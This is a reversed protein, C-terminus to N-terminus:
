DVAVFDIVVETISVMYGGLLFGLGNLFEIHLNLFQLLARQAMVLIQIFPNLIKVLYFLQAMLLKFGLIM